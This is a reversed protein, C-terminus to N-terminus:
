RGNKLADYLLDIDKLNSMLFKQAAQELKPKLNDYTGSEFNNFANLLFLQALNNELRDLVIRLRHFNKEYSDSVTATIVPILESYDIDANNTLFKNSIIKSRSLGTRDIENNIMELVNDDLYISLKPM